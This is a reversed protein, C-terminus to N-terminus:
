KEITNVEPINLTDLLCQKFACISESTILPSLVTSRMFTLIIASLGEILM